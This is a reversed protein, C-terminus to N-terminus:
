RSAASGAPFTGAHAFATVGDPLVQHGGGTRPGYGNSSVSRGDRRCRAPQRNAYPGLRAGSALVLSTLHAKANYHGRAASQLPITIPGVRDQRRRLYACARVSGHDLREGEGVCVRQSRASARSGKPLSSHDPIPACSMSRRSPVMAARVPSGCVAQGRDGRITAM